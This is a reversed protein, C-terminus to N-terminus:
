FKGFENLVSSSVRIYFQQGWQSLTRMDVLDGFWLVCGSGGNRIDLNSYAM